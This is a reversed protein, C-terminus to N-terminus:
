GVRFMMFAAYFPTIERDAFYFRCISHNLFFVVFCLVLGSFLFCLGVPVSPSIGRKIWDSPFLPMTIGCEEEFSARCLVLM